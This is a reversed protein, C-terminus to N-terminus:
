TVAETNGCLLSPQTQGQPIFEFHIIDKVDLFTIRMTMMQSKSMCAEQTTLIDAIEMAFQTM